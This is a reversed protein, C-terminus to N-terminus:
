VFDTKYNGLYPELDDAIDGNSLDRLSKFLQTIATPQGVNRSGSEM